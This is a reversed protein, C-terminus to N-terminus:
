ERVKSDPFDWVLFNKSAPSLPRERRFQLSPPTPVQLTNDLYILDVAILSIHVSLCIYTRVDTRIELEDTALSNRPYSYRYSSLYTNSTVRSCILSNFLKTPPLTDKVIFATVRM